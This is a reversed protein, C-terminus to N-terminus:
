EPYSQGSTSGAKDVSEPFSEGLGRPRGVRADRSVPGTSVKGVGCDALEM